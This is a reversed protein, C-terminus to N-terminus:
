GNIAEILKVPCKTDQTVITNKVLHGRFTIGAGIVCNDEIISGKLITANAGIWVNNGIVVRKMKFNSGRREDLYRYDHDHDVIVVNPGFLCDNGIEIYEKATIVCGQNFFSTGIKLKGGDCRFSVHRRTFVSNSMELFGSQVIIETTPDLNQILKIKFRKKSINLVSVRFINYIMVLIKRLNQKRLKKILDM